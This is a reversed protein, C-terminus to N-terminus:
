TVQIFQWESDAPRHLFSSDSGIIETFSQVRDVTLSLASALAHEDEASPPGRRPVAGYGYPDSHGPSGDGCAAAFAVVLLMSAVLKSTRPPLTALRLATQLYHM